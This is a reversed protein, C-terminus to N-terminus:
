TSCEVGIEIRTDQIYAHKKVSNATAEDSALQDPDVTKEFFSLDPSLLVLTLIVLIKSHQDNKAKTQLKIDGYVATTM